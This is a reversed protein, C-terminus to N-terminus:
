ADISCWFLTGESREGAEEGEKSVIKPAMGNNEIGKGSDSRSSCAAWWRFAQFLSGM